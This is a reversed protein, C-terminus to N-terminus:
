KGKSSLSRVTIIRPGAEESPVKAKARASAPGPGALSSSSPGQVEEGKFTMVLCIHKLVLEYIYTHM